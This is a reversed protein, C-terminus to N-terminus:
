LEKKSKLQLSDTDALSAYVNTFFHGGDASWQYSFAYLNKLGFADDKFNNSFPKKLLSSIQSSSNKINAFYSITSQNTIYQNLDIFEPTTALFKDQNYFGLFQKVTSPSNALIIYNDIVSYFPRPFSRMPDGFCYYFVNANNFQSIEDSYPQSILSLLNVLNTGNTLKIIALKQQDALQFVAFENGFFKKIDRDIDVGSSLKLLAFQNQLKKLENRNGLLKKLRADYAIYDSIGFAIYNSTSAPLAKIITTKIPHQYLFLNLYSSASSDTIAIGNFMLANSKFNMSLTSYGCLQNILSSQDSLKGKFFNSLFGRGAQHDIFVSLLSNEKPSGSTIETIFRKSIKGKAPNLSNQLLSKSFSGVISGDEIYVYFPNNKALKIEVAERSAVKIKSASYDSHQSLLASYIDKKNKNLALLWLMSIESNAEHHFTLFINQADIASSFSSSGLINQLAALQDSAKKGLVANFLQYGKFIDRFYKDNNFEFVFAADNPIYSLLKDTTRTQSSITSFYMSAM